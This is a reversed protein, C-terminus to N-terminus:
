PRTLGYTISGDAAVDYIEYGESVNPADAAMSVAFKNTANRAIDLVLEVQQAPSYHKRLPALEAEGIRGPTWIFADTFALAAKLADSLDSHAYRDVADFTADTAGAAFASHSRVSKCIRCQHQRAGRLRVLETTIPDLGQLGPVVRILDEIAAWVSGPLAASAPKAPAASAGFLADLAFRARPIVDAVYLAQAFPVAADGLAQVLAARQDERVSSVDLSFQEAFDLASRQAPSLDAFSRWASAERAAFRGPGLGAPRAVPAVGQLSACVRAALDVLDVDPLRWIVAELADLASAAAPAFGELAGRGGRDGARAGRKSDAMADGGIPTASLM